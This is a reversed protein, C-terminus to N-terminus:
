IIFIFELFNLDKENFNSMEHESNIKVEQFNEKRKNKIIQIQIGDKLNSM